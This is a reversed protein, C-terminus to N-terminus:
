GNIKRKKHRKQKTRVIVDAINLNHAEEATLWIDHECLLEKEIKKKTLGTCNMYHKLMREYISRFEKNVSILNNHSGAAGWSYLHSMVSTKETIVRNGVEGNMFIMLAASAVEGLGTTHVPTRIYDMVDCIQWAANVSGGGSNIIMTIPHYNNTLVNIKDLAIMQQTAAVATQMTIDGVIYVIYDLPNIKIVSGEEGDDDNEHNIKANEEEMQNKNNKIM